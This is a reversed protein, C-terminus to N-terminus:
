KEKKSRKRRTGPPPLIPPREPTEQSRQLEVEEFLLSPAVASAPVGGQLFDTARSDKGAAVIGSLLTWPTGVMDLGRVLTRAGSKADVLYLKGPLLRIAGHGRVQQEQLLRRARVVWLGFRKGRAACVRRLLAFLDGSSLPRSSTFVAVGPRGVPLYGPAARGHGNSHDFGAVPYRSLLFSKLVGNQILAVKQAPIGQDDIEYHGALRRGGFAVLGPDDTLSFSPGLVPKGLKGMFIQTGSPDRASEGSMRSEIALMVAGAAEPDLIAPASFPSTTKAVRLSELEAILDRAEKKLLSAAPIARPSTAIHHRLAEIRVGDSSLAVASIAIELVDRNLSLHRGETDFVRLRRRALDVSTTGSLLWSAGAFPQASDRCLRDLATENWAQPSEVAAPHLLPERTFDDTDYEAKGRLVFDAQKKLYDAAADKYAADFTLWLAHRIPGEKETEDIGAFVYRTPPTLPQNDFAHSGVRLDPTASRESYRDKFYRPGLSCLERFGSIDYVNLGIYYPKPYGPLAIGALARNMEKTVSAALADGGARAAVPAAALAAALLLSSPRM